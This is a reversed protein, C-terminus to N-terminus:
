SQVNKARATAAMCGRYMSDLHELAESLRYYYTRESIELHRLKRYTPMPSLYHVLLVDARQKYARDSREIWHAESEDQLAPETPEMWEDLDDSALIYRGRGLRKLRGQTADRALIHRVRAPKIGPVALSMRRVLDQLSQQQPLYPPWYPRPPAWHCNSLLCITRDFGLIEPGDDKLLDWLEGSRLSNVRALLEDPSCTGIRWAARRAAAWRKLSPGWKLSLHQRARAAREQAATNISSISSSL